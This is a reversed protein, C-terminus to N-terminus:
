LERDDKEAIQTAIEVVLDGEVTLKTSHIVRPKKRSKVKDIEKRMEDWTTPQAQM